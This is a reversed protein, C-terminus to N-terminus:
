NIKKLKGAMVFFYIQKSEKNKYIPRALAEDALVKM